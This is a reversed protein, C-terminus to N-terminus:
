SEDSRDRGHRDRRAIAAAAKRRVVLGQDAEIRRCDLQKMRYQFYYDICESALYLISFFGPAFIALTDIVGRRILLFVTLLLALALFLERRYGKVLKLIAMGLLDLTM